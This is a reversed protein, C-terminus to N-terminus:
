RGGQDGRDPAQRPASVQRGQGEACQHCCVGVAGRHHQRPRGDAAWRRMSPTRDLVLIGAEGGAIVGTVEGDVCVALVKATDEDKEYGTFETPTNDLGLDMGAWALDGLAKRAERARVKQEQMLKAFAAEDVTMGEDEVMEVTLDIPFGYTDYLKFADAGSFVTEGKAKHEALLEAFIKMGGDITGPM